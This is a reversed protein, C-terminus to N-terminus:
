FLEGKTVTKSIDLVNHSKASPFVNENFFVVQSTRSSEPQVAFRLKGSKLIHSRGRLIPHTKTKKEPRIM